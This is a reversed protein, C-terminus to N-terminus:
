NKKARLQKILARIKDADQANPVLKLFAELENAADQYRHSESYYQALHMHVDPPINSGGLEAAKKLHPEADAHKNQKWYAMGLYFHEFAANSSSPALLLSRRLSETAEPMQHLHYQAVGLGYYSASGNRNIEVARSLLLRAAEYQQFKVYEIGLRELAYYYDPFIRLADKLSDIGLSNESPNELQRLARDYAKKANEPIEQVFTAGTNGPVAPGKREEIDKLVFDIQEYHSAGTNRIAQLIVRMSQGAHKGDSHVKVIFTGQSLNRFTYRGATDTYTQTIFMEVENLLEVRMRNLPEGGSNLVVGNIMNRGQVLVTAGAASFSLGSLVIMALFLTGLTKM